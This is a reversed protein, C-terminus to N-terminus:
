QQHISLWQQITQTIHNFERSLQEQLEPRKNENHDKIKNLLRELENSGYLSVSSITQHAYSSAKEWHKAQLHEQIKKQREFIRPLAYELVEITDEIGLDQALQELSNNQNKNM